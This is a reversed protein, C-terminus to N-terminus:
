FDKDASFQYSRGAIFALLMSEINQATYQRYKLVYLMNEIFSKYDEEKSSLIAVDSPDQFLLSQLFAAAARENIFAIDEIQSLQEYGLGNFDNKIQIPKRRCIWYALYSYIKIENVLKIDKHFAKLRYIDTFYDTIVQNLIPSSIVLDDTFGSSKIFEDLLEFVFCYREQIKLKGFEEILFNNDLQSM